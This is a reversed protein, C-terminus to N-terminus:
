NKKFKGIRAQQSDHTFVLSESSFFINSPYYLTIEYYTTSKDICSVNTCTSQKFDNTILIDEPELNLAPIFEKSKYEYFLQDATSHIAGKDTQIALIRKVQHAVINRIKVNTFTKSHVNYSTVISNKSLKEIAIPGAPTLILTGIELGSLLYTHFSFILSFISGIIKVNKIRM